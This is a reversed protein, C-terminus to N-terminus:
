EDLQRWILIEKTKETVAKLLITCRKRSANKKKNYLIIFILEQMERGFYTINIM